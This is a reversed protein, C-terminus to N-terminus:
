KRHTISVQIQNLYDRGAWFDNYDGTARDRGEAMEGDRVTARCYERRDEPGSYIFDFLVDVDEGPYGGPSRVLGHSRYYHYYSTNPAIPIIAELGEVGTTAAAVPLTGNYSTGTMGVKGTSWFAVVEEGGVPETFGKARGNLWDIVAKPALSENPGGVTPCGQSLGTGPSSSHVVVFGRPVWTRTESNSIIPRRSQQPIDPMPKRPAPRAGVEQRIDWFTELDLGATGAYYPSTAYVVPLRLGQETQLPRTVGVHVRDLRGDGDSDFETEVWLDERIWMEPDSFSEVEQAQGDVFVPEADQGVLPASTGSLALLVGSLALAVLRPVHIPSRPVRPSSMAVRTPIPEFRGRVKGRARRM